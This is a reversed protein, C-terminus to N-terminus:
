MGLGRQTLQSSEKVAGLTVFLMILARFMWQCVTTGTTGAENTVINIADSSTIAASLKLALLMTAAELVTSVAYKYYNAASHSFAPGGVMTSSAIAGYPVILLVKFFRIYAFYLISGGAAVSGVIFLISIIACMAGSGLDVTGNLYGTVDSPITLKVSDASPVFGSTLKDVLSFFVQIITISGTVLTEAIVLKIFEKLMVEFRVNMREDVSMSIVGILWFIMVLSGGVAMFATNVSTIVNWGSGGNWTDPSQKLLDVALGILKNYTSTGLDMLSNALGGFVGGAWNGITSNLADTLWSGLQSFIDSVVGM